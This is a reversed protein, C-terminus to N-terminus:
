LGLEMRHRIHTKRGSEVPPSSMVIRFGNREWFARAQRNEDLVALLLRPANRERALAKIHDLLMSGLGSGRYAPDILMLGLYADQKEPFDFGLDMLAILAGGHDMLGLKFARSLNGGPAVDFFFDRVTGEGPDAGTEMNVYDAARRYFDRVLQAHHSFRLSVIRTSYMVTSSRNFPVTRSKDSSPAIILGFLLKVRGWPSGQYSHRNLLLPTIRSRTRM